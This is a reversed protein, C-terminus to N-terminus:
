LSSYILFLHYVECTILFIITNIILLGLFVLMEHLQIFCLELLLVLLLNVM